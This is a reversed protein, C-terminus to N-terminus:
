GGGGDGGGAGGAGALVSSADVLVADLSGMITPDSYLAEPIFGGGYEEGSGQPFTLPTISSASADAPQQRDLLRHLEGHIPEMLLVASGAFGLFSLARQPNEDVWNGFSEEGAFVGQWLEQRMNEGNRTLKWESIGSLPSGPGQRQYLGRDALSPMVEKEVYGGPWGYRKRVAKVLKEVSISRSEGGAAVGAGSDHALDFIAALSRSDPREPEETPALLGVVSRRLGFLYRREGREFCLKNRAVLEVLALKLARIRAWNQKPGHLLMCSEPATLEWPNNFGLADEREM